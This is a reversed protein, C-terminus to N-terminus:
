LTTLQAVEPALAKEWKTFFTCIERAKDAAPATSREIRKSMLQTGLHQSNLKCLAGNALKLWCPHNPPPVAM